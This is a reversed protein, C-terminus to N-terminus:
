KKNYNKKGENDIELNFEFKKDDGNQCMFVARHKNPIVIKEYQPEIIVNDGEAVGIKGDEEITSYNISTDEKETEIKDRNPIYISLILSVVIIIIRLFISKKSM